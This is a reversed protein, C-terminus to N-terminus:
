GDPLHIAEVVGYRRDVAQRLFGLMQALSFLKPYLRRGGRRSRSIYRWLLYIWLNVILFALSVFLFRVIPNKTTTKIRCQNKMRYSSEIGFRLRYDGHIFRLSSQNQYVTYAFYEIGHKGRKGKKYTCVVWVDFTVSGYKDSVMTYNTQYSHRGQLLQRTGGQKGRIIVPMVFPINLTQLWRIVPVCFFGRDLYLQKIKLQLPSILALLYTIVAVLTDSYRVAKIALTVRKGKKIVYLTAYAYFSCTGNKAQSRYIYPLEEPSPNGYYPILNLDIAVKHHGQYIRSPLRSQLAQNLQSELTELNDYKELHYRIDNSSPANKLTKSTNELSDRQSAARILIEFITQQDCFGQSSIPIYETLCSVVEELTETDNLASREQKQAVSFEGSAEIEKAM